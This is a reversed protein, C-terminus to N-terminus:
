ATEVVRQPRQGVQVPCDGLGGVLRRGAEGLPARWEPRIGDVGVEFVLLEHLGAM